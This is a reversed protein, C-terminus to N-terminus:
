ETTGGEAYRILGRRALHRLAHRVDEEPLDAERALQAPTDCVTGRPTAAGALGLLVVWLWREGAPLDLLDRDRHMTVKMRVWSLPGGERVERNVAKHPPNYKDFNVIVFM